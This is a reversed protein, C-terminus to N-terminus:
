NFLIPKYLYKQWATFRKELLRLTLIISTKNQKRKKKEKRFCVLSFSFFYLFILSLYLFTSVDSINKRKLLITINAIEWLLASQNSSHEASRIANSYLLLGVDAQAVTLLTSGTKHKNRSNQNHLICIKSEWAFSSIGGLGVSRWVDRMQARYEPRTWWCRQLEWWYKSSVFRQFFIRPRFVLISKCLM